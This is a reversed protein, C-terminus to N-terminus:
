KNLISKYLDIYKNYTKNKDFFSRAYEKCPSSYRAKGNIKMISLANLVEELNGTEVRIGTEESVLYTQATNDYVIAPTGCAMGEVITLGMSEGYSLSTVVDAMSYYEALEKQTTTREIGIINDPLLKIQRKSLGILIIRCKQPILASLKVYDLLGKDASWANAVGLIVFENTLGLKQRLDSETPRFISLDIGNSIVTVPLLKFYSQQVQKHLWDSIPVITLDHLSLFSEKKKKWNNKSNDLLWATPYDGKLPCGFCGTIWRNCKVKVFHACHGTFAWCDHLTWVVPINASSLYQFLLRYNLYYGHVNHLHVIDPKISDIHKILHRTAQRSALGHNDFLLTEVAHEYYDLKTGIIYKNSKSPYPRGFASVAVYSEWGQQLISDSIQEVIKGTSGKNVNINIQLVKYM